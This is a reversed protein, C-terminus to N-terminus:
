LDPPAINSRGQLDKSLNELQGYVFWLMSLNQKMWKARWIDKELCENDM